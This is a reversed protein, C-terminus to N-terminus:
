FSIRYSLNPIMLAERHEEVIDEKLNYRFGNFEKYINANLIKIALSQTYRKRYWEYKITFHTVLSPRIQLNFPTTSDFVVDKEIKSKEEDVKSYREGGQVNLRANVSWLSRSFRFEKGILFNALYSKDYRTNFWNGNIDQYRSKFVSGSILYYMGNSIFQELLVDIGYNEGNGESIYNESIFWNDQANILSGTGNIAVPVDFLRQYYPELKLHLNDSLAWDYGLVFHHAKTLNLELGNVNGFNANAFYINLPEMRSHLGYGLSLTHNQSVKYEAGFRPELTTEQNFDFYVGTLGLNINWNGKQIMGSYFASYLGSQGDENITQNMEEEVDDLDFNYWMNRLTIGIRHSYSSSIKSQFYSNLTLNQNVAYIKQFPILQTDANLRETNLDFGDTTYALTSHLYSKSGIILKHNVGTAGMHQDVQQEEIDQYYTQQDVDLEASAGSKDLLGIGWISFVGAKNTPLHVKFSLDQYNTGQADEPLLSSVLGLTSYRYNFLYSSTNKKSIPGESSLDIGIAGIEFAHSYESTNGKRMKIDFIGALANSYQAPFAGTFFDSDALLNSCLATLGGGGFTGINAFHNPNPVEIDEIKWQLFKPANGRIVIANNQVGSAVGPFASALRAPDDFGGAYRGAEEMSLMKTSVTALPNLSSAKSSEPKIVVEDLVSSQESLEFDLQISKSSTIIVENQIRPEYGIYSAEIDYRGVSVNELKYYGNEDTTTGIIPDSDVIQVTAFPLPQHTLVDLVQGSINQTIEQAFLTSVSFIVVVVLIIRKM